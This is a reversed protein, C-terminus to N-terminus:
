LGINQWQEQWPLASRSKGMMPDTRSFGLGASGGHGTRVNPFM